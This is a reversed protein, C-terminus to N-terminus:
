LRRVLTLTVSETEPLWQFRELLEAAEVCLVMALNNPLHFQEWERASESM